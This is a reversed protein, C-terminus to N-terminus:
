EAFPPLLALFRALAVVVTFPMIAAERAAKRYGFANFGLVYPGAELVAHQFDRRRCRLRLPTAPPNFDL